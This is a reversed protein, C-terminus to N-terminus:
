MWCEVACLKEAALLITEEKKAFCVRLISDDKHQQYFASLPITAVGYKKTLEIAVEKDSISTIKEFGICQFYSGQAKEFVTFNSNQIAELFLDRKQQFFIPLSTYSSKEKMYNAIAVQMTTNSSFTMYQHLKRFEATFFAPAVCYGLKWGTTHLVKGFSFVVFSRNYLAPYMLVSQHKRNDLTIHEYVEDSIIIINTNNTIKELQLMDEETFVYGTPNHPTNIIIAKTKHTIANKVAQWDVAFSPYMLAVRVATAGCMEINAIYSDYAPELVIVEDLPQLITAFCAYIAYTAGSTITIETEPHIEKAYLYHIKEAITERLPLMGQMPAYQNYGDQVAKAVHQKLVENIEFDPFGQSVNIANYEKALGSMVTFITTGVNPMKSTFM